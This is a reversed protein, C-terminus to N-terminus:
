CGNEACSPNGLAVARYGHEVVHRQLHPWTLEDDEEPWAAGALCGQKSAESAQDFRIAAAYKDALLRKKLDGPRGERVRAAINAQDELLEVQDPAEARELVHKGTAQAMNGRPAGHEPVEGSGITEKGIGTELPNTKELMSVLPGVGQGSALLLANCDRSHERLPAPYDQGVLGHGTEVLTCGDVHEGNQAMDRNLAVDTHKTAKVL